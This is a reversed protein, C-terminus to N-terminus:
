VKRKRESETGKDRDRETERHRKRVRETERHIEKDRRALSQRWLSSSEWHSKDNSRNLIHEGREREGEETRRERARDSEIQRYVQSLKAELTFLKGTSIPWPEM